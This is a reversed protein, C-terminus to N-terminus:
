PLVLDPLTHVPASVAPIVAWHFAEEPTQLVFPHRRHTVGLRIPFDITSFELETALKQQGNEVTQSLLESSAAAM